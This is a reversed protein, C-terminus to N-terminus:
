YCVAQVSPWFCFPAIMDHKNWDEKAPLTNAEVTGKVLRWLDQMFHQALVMKSLWVLMKESKKL